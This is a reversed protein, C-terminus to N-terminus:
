ISITPPNKRLYIDFFLRTCWVATFLTTAIGIMLMVAFGRIPGSGYQYLVLGAMGTTLHGDLV